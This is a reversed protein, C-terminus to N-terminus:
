WSRCATLRVGAAANVMSMVVSAVGAVVSTQISMNGGKVRADVSGVRSDSAM